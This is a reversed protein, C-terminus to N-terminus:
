ENNLIVLEWVDGSEGILYMGDPYPYAISDLVSTSHCLIERAAGPTSPKKGQYYFIFHEGIAPHNVFRGVFTHSEMSMNQILTRNPIQMYQEETM